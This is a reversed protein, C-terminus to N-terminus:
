RLTVRLALPYVFFNQFLQLNSDAQRKILGAEIALEKIRDQMDTMEQFM